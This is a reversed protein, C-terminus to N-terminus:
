RVRRLIEAVSTGQQRLTEALDIDPGTGIVFQCVAAGTACCQLEVSHREAREFFSVAGALLGAYVHCVPEEAGHLARAIASNHVSALVVGRKNPATDFACSGWGSVAFPTWWSDLVFRADMQWLDFASGIEDRLRRNMAAMEQLSWEYGCRYLIDAANDGFQDVFAAHLALLGEAPLAAVRQGDESRLSGLSADAQFAMHRLLNAPESISNRTMFAGALPQLRMVSRGTM